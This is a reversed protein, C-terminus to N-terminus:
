RALMGALDNVQRTMTKMVEGDVRTMAIFIGLDADPVLVIYSMFGGGGGTKQILAPHNEDAAQHLWALGIGDIPGAVDLGEVSTLDNRRVQVAHARRDAALQSQMWLGIDNATSYLGGAGIGPLQDNCPLSTAAGGADMLRACQAETPTATTDIMRLPGTVRQALLQAYPTGLKNGIADALLDFAVNSYRASRGPVPLNTQRELWLWRAKEPSPDLGKLDASRPLGSTHTALQGLTIATPVQRGAPAYRQLPEDLDLRGDSVFTGLLDAVFLKSTSNIRLLSLGDPKRGSGPRTEGYGRVTGVHNHVITVVMGRAGSDTFIRQLENELESRPLRQAAADSLVLLTLLAATCFRALLM